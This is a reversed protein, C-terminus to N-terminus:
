TILEGSNPAIVMDWHQRNNFIIRITKEWAGNPQSPVGQSEPMGSYKKVSDRPIALFLGTGSDPIVWFAFRLGQALLWTM